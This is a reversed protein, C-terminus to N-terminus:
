FERQKVSDIQTDPVSSQRVQFREVNKLVFTPVGEAKQAKVNTLEVGKV